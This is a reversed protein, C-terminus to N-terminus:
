YGFRSTAVAENTLPGLKTPLAIQEFLTQVLTFRFLHEGKDGEFNMGLAEELAQESAHIAAMERLYADLPNMSSM